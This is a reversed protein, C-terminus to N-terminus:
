DLDRGITTPRIRRTERSQNGCDWQVRASLAVGMGHLGAGARSGNAAACHRVRSLDTTVTMDSGPFAFARMPDQTHSYTCRVRPDMRIRVESGPSAFALMSDQSYSHTRIIMTIMSTYTTYLYLSLSNSNIQDISHIVFLVNFNIITITRRVVNYMYLMFRGETYALRYRIGHRM